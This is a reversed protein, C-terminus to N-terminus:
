ALMHEFFRLSEVADDQFNGAPAEISLGGRYEIKKIVDFFARYEPDESPSKPWTRGAPNAFHLHVIQSRAQWIVRPDENEKRLHYFDVIMKVNPHNVEQVLRLAEGVTNIINSEQRRLHEVGIVINGRQAIDGASRLFDQIQRWARDRSFQAPVNRSGSSGWVVVEAGLQHCRELTREMYRRLDEVPVNDGVVKLKRILSRFAKCRIPSALVKTKFERFGAEDMAEIESAEPEYYDFGYRVADEFHASDSCVGVQVPGPREFARNAAGVIAGLGTV